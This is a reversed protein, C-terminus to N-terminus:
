HAEGARLCRRHTLAAVRDLSRQPLAREAAAEIAAWIKPDQRLRDGVQAALPDLRQLRLEPPFINLGALQTAPNQLGADVAHRRLVLFAAVDGAEGDLWYLHSAVQPRAAERVMEGVLKRDNALAPMAAALRVCHAVFDAPDIEDPWIVQLTLEPHRALLVLAAMQGRGWDDPKGWREIIKAAANKVEGLQELLSEKHLRAEVPPFNIKPAIRRLVSPVSLDLPPGGENLALIDTITSVDIPASSGEGRTVVIAVPPAAAAKRLRLRFGLDDGRYVALQWARGSPDVVERKGLVGADCLLRDSDVAVALRSAEPRTRLFEVFIATPTM